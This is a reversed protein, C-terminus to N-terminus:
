LAGGTPMAAYGGVFAWGAVGVRRGSGQIRCWRQHVESVFITDFPRGPASRFLRRDTTACMSSLDEGPLAVAGGNGATRGAEIVRM